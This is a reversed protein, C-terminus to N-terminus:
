KELKLLKVGHPPVMQSLPNEATIESGDWVDVAKTYGDTQIGKDSLQRFTM